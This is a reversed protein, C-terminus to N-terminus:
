IGRAQLPAVSPVNTTKSSPSYYIKNADSVCENGSAISGDLIIILASILIEVAIGQDGREVIEQNGSRTRCWSACPCKVWEDKGPTLKLHLHIDERLYQYWAWEFTSYNKTNMHDIYSCCLLHESFLWAQMSRQNCDTNRWDLAYMQLCQHIQNYRSHESQSVYQLFVGDAYLWWWASRVWMVWQIHDNGYDTKGPGSCAPSLRTSM